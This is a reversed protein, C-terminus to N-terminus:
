MKAVSKLILNGFIAIIINPPYFISSFHIVDMKPLIWIAKRLLSFAYKNNKNTSYHVNFGDVKHWKNKIISSNDIDNDTTIVFPSQGQRALESALWFVTNSPGGSQAPFFSKIPFLIKM